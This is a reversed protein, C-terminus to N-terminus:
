EKICRKMEELMLEKQRKIRKIIIKKQESSEFKRLMEDHSEVPIRLLSM